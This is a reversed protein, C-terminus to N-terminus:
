KDGKLCDICNGTSVYRWGTHGRRCPQGTRYVKFGYSEADERSVITDPADRMMITDPTVRKDDKGNKNGPVYGCAHCKGDAVDRVSHLKCKTCPSTSLYTDHCDLLAQERPKIVSECQICKVKNHQDSVVVHGYQPCPDYHLLYRSPDSNILTIMNRVETLEVTNNLKAPITSPWNILANEGRRVLEIKHRQCMICRNNKTFKTSSSDCFSCKEDAIYLRTRLKAADNRGSPHPAWQGNKMKYAKTM